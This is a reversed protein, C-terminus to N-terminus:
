HRAAGDDDKCLDCFTPPHRNAPESTSAGPSLALRFRTFSSMITATLSLRGSRTSFDSSTLPASAAKLSAASCMTSISAATGSTLRHHGDLGPHYGGRPAQQSGEYPQHPCSGVTLRM